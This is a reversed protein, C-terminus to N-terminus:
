KGGRRRIARGGVVRESDNSVGLVGTTVFSWGAVRTVGVPEGSSPDTTAGISVVSPVGRYGYNGWYLAPHYNFIRLGSMLLLTLFLVNAWHTVRVALSHRYITERRHPPDRAEAVPPATATVQEIDAM